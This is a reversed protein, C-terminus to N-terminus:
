RDNRCRTAWPSDPLLSMSASPAGTNRQSTFALLSTAACLGPAGPSGDLEVRVAEVGDPAFAEVPVELGVGHRGLM